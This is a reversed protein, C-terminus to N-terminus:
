QYGKDINLSMIIKVGVKGRSHPLTYMQSLFFTEGLITGLRGLTNNFDIITNDLM